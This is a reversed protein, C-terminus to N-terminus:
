RIFEVDTGAVQVHIAPLCADIDVGVIISFRSWIKEPISLTLAM